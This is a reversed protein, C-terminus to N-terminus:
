EGLDREEEGIAALVFFGLFGVVVVVLCCSFGGGFGSFGAEHDSTFVSKGEFGLWSVGMGSSGVVLVGLFIFKSCGVVLFGFFIFRSSVVVLFSLFIFASSGVLLFGLFIFHEPESQLLM